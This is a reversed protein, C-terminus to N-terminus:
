AGSGTSHGALAEILQQGRERDWSPSADYVSGPDHGKGGPKM